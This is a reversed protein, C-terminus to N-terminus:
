HVGSRGAFVRGCLAFIEVFRRGSFPMDIPGAVTPTAETVATVMGQRVGQGDVGAWTLRHLVIRRYHPRCFYSLPSDVLVPRSM